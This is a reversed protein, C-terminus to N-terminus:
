KNHKINTISIKNKPLVEFTNLGLKLFICSFRMGTLILINIALLINVVTERYFLVLFTSNKSLNIYKSFVHYVNLFINKYYLESSLKHEFFVKFM